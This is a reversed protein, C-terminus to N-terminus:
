QPSVPAAFDFYFCAVTSNQEGYQNILSDIVLPGVDRDASTMKKQEAYITLKLRIYTKGVELTGYCFLVSDNSEGGGSGTQLRRFEETRIAM